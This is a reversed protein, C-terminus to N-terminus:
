ASVDEIEIVMGVEGATEVIEPAGVEYREIEEFSDDKLLGCDVLADTFWKTFANDPDRRRKGQVKEYFRLRYRSLPAKIGNAAFADHLACREHESLDGRRYRDTDTEGAKGNRDRM